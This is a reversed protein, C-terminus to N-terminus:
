NTSYVLHRLQDYKKKVNETRSNLYLVISTVVVGIFQALGFLIVTTGITVLKKRLTGIVTSPCGRSFILGDKLQQGAPCVDKRIDDCDLLKAVIVPTNCCSAPVTTCNCPEGSAFSDCGFLNKYDTYNSSGCCDHDQQFHDWVSKTRNDEYYEKLSDTATAIFAREIKGRFRLAAAGAGTESVIVLTLVFAYVGLLLRGSITRIFCGGILGLMALLVVVAGMVAVSEPIRHLKEVDEAIAFYQRESLYAWLGVSLVALGLLLVLSNAAVLLGQLIYRQRQEKTLDAM